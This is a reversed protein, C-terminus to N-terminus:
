LVRPYSTVFRGLFIPGRLRSARLAAGGASGTPELTMTARGTPGFPM